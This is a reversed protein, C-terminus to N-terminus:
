KNYEKLYRRKIRKYFNFLYYLEPYIKEMTGLNRNKFNASKKKVINYDILEYNADNITLGNGKTIKRNELGDKEFNKEPKLNDYNFSYHHNQHIVKVQNSIDIVPILRRRAHWILWNDYGFRGVAFDPLNKFLNKTFVFYDIGSSAHKTAKKVMLPWYTKDKKTIDFNIKNKVDLDWRHGIMLFRKKNLKIASLIKLFNHPLLIDANIFVLFNNISIKNAIRFLDSLLPVGKPSKKVNPVYIGNIQKAVEKAGKSDGIIIIEVDKGLARWSSIANKQIIDFIGEFHKPTCFITIM